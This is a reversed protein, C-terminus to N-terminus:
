TGSKASVLRHLNHQGPDVNGGVVHQGILLYFIFFHGHPRRQGPDVNPGFIGFVHQGGFFPLIFHETYIINIRILMEVSINSSRNVAGFFNFCFPEHLRHQGPDVNLRM